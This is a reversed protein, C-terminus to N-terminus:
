LNENKFFKLDKPMQIEFAVINIFMCNSNRQIKYKVLTVFKIIIFLRGTIKISNYVDYKM